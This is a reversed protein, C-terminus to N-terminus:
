IDDSKRRTSRETEFGNPYRVRLKEINMRFIKELDYGIADASVALYWAIDGLEKALHEENLEHGQFLHKKLIDIAEGAEGNLGMLGNVIRDIKTMMKKPETRLAEKQYDNISLPWKRLEELTPTYERNWCEVCRKEDERTVFGYPCKDPLGDDCRLFGYRNPCGYIGAIYIERIDQPRSKKVRDKLTM